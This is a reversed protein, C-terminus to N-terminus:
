ATEGKSCYDNPGVLYHALACEALPGIRHKCEKCYVIPPMYEVRWTTDRSDLFRRCDDLRM